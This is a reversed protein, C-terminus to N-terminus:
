EILKLERVFVPSASAERCMNVLLIMLTIFRSRGLDSGGKFTEFYIDKSDECGTLYFGNFEFFYFNNVSLMIDPSAIKLKSISKTTLWFCTSTVTSLTITSQNSCTRTRETLTDTESWTVCLVCSMTRRTTNEQTIGSCFIFLNSILKVVFHVIVVVHSGLKFTCIM